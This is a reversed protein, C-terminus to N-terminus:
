PLPSPHSQLKKLFCQVPTDLFQVPTLNPKSHTSTLQVPSPLLASLTGLRGSLFSPTWKICCFMTDHTFHLAEMNASLYLHQHVASAINNIHQTQHHINCTFNAEVSLRNAPCSWDSHTVWFSAVPQINLHIKIYWVFSDRMRHAM